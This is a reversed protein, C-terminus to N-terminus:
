LMCMDGKIVHANKTKIRYVISEGAQIIRLMKGGYISDDVIEVDLIINRQKLTEFKNRIYEIYGNYDLSEFVWQSNYQFDPSLHKIILEPNFTKWANAFDTIITDMAKNKYDFKNNSIVLTPYLITGSNNASKTLFLKAWNPKVVNLLTILCIVIILFM